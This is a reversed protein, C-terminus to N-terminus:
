KGDVYDGDGFEIVTDDSIIDKFDIEIHEM